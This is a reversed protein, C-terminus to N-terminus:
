LYRDRDINEWLHRYTDILIPLIFSRYHDINISIIHMELMAVPALVGLVVHNRMRLLQVTVPVAVRLRQQHAQKRTLRRIMISSRSPIVTQLQQNMVQVRPQLAIYKQSLEVARKM